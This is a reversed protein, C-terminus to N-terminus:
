TEPTIHISGQRLVTIAGAKTVKVITSPAGNLVGGDIVADHRALAAAAEQATEPTAEGSRNASTVALPGVRHALARVLDADPCRVGVTGDGARVTAAVEPDADIIVTLAGPWHADMLRQAAPPVNPAIDAVQGPDALLVAIPQDAPRGKAEFLGDVGATSLRAAVGYVTDTPLVVLGDARLMEALEELWAADHASM